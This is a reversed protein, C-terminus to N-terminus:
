VDDFRGAKCYGLMKLFVNRMETKITEKLNEDYIDIAFCGEYNDYDMSYIDNSWFYNTELCGLRWVYNYEMRQKEENWEGYYQGDPGFNIFGFGDEWGTEYQSGYMLEVGNKVDQEHRKMDKVIIDFEEDIREYYKPHALLQEITEIGLSGYFRAVVSDFGCEYISDDFDCDM